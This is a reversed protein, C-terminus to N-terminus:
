TCYYHWKMHLGRASVYKGTGALALSFAKISHEKRCAPDVTFINQLYFLAVQQEQEVKVIISEM